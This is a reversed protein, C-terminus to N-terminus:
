GEGECSAEAGREGKATAVPEIRRLLAEAKEEADELEKIHEWTPERWAVEPECVRDLDCDLFRALSNRLEMLAERLEPAAAILRANAESESGNGTSCIAHYVDDSSDAEHVVWSGPPHFQHLNLTAEWPGKTPATVPVGM